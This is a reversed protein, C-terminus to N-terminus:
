NHIQVFNIENADFDEETETAPIKGVVNYAQCLNIIIKGNNKTCPNTSLTCEPAHTMELNFFDTLFSNNKKNDRLKKVQEVLCKGFVFQGNAISEM